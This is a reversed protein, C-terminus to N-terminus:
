PVKGNWEKLNSSFSFSLVFMQLSFLFFLFYFYDWYVSNLCNGRSTAVWPTVMLLWGVIDEWAGQMIVWPSIVNNAAGSPDVCCCKQNYSQTNLSPEGLFKNTAHQWKKNLCCVLTGDIETCIYVLYISLNTWCWVDSSSFSNDNLLLSQAKTKFRWSKFARVLEEAIDNDLLPLIKYM